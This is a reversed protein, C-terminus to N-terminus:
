ARVTPTHALASLESGHSDVVELKVPLRTMKRAVTRGALLNLMFSPTIFRSDLEEM